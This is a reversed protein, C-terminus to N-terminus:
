STREYWPKDFRDKDRRSSRKIERKPRKVEIASLTNNLQKKTAKFYESGRVLVGGKEKLIKIFETEFVDVIQQGSYGDGRKNFTAIYYVSIGNCYINNYSKIRATGSHSKGVKFNCNDCSDKPKIIYFIHKGDTLANFDEVWKIGSIPRVRGLADFLVKM